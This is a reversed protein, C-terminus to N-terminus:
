LEIAERLIGEHRPQLGGTSVVEVGVGLLGKLDQVLGVQDLASAGPEFDVLFDIDSEPGTSGRVVSGFIRVRKAKRTHALELIKSRYSMVEVLTVPKM